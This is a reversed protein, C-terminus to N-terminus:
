LRSEVSLEAGLPLFQVPADALHPGSKQRGQGVCRMASPSRLRRQGNKRMPMAAATEERTRGTHSVHAKPPLLATCFKLLSKPPSKVAEGVDAAVVDNRRPSICFASVALGGVMGVPPETVSSIGVSIGAATFAISVGPSGCSIFKLKMPSMGPLKAPPM